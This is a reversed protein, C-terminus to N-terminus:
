QNEPFLRALTSILEDGRLSEETAIIMGKDDVLIPKPIGMVEFTRSLENKFGDKVFTHLWPMAWRSNRFPSIAGPTQDFSLSLIEFGRPHFREYAKHLNPMEMVCPGCWTAWFDILYIRGKMNERTYIVGPDALSVVRFDPVMHGVQIARNPDFEAKVIQGYSSGLMREDFAAYYHAVASSDHRSRADYLLIYGVVARSNPSVPGRLFRDVYEGYDGANGTAGIAGPLVSPSLEWVISEPGIANLLSIVLENGDTMESWTVLALAELARLPRIQQTAANMADITAQIREPVNIPSDPREKSAAIALRHERLRTILAHVERQFPDTHIVEPDTNGAVLRAPDFTITAKGKKVSVVSKWDGGGDYEYRVGDTGNVSHGNVLGIIQYSLTAAGKPASVSATFRGNKARVMKVGTGWDWDNFDGIVMLSDYSGSHDFRGLRVNVNINEDGKELLLPVTHTNHGVGSYYINVLGIREFTLTYEGRANASVWSGDANDHGLGVRAAQMPNGDAGLIRGHVTTKEQAVATTALMLLLACRIFSNKMANVPFTILCALVRNVPKM